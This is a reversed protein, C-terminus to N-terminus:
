IIIHFSVVGINETKIKDAPNTYMQGETSRSESDKMSSLKKETVAYLDCSKSTGEHM